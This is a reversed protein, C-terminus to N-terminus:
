DTAQHLDASVPMTLHLVQNKWRKLSRTRLRKGEVKRMIMLRELNDFSKRALLALLEAVNPAHLCTAFLSQSGELNLEELLSRKYSSSDLTNATSPALM